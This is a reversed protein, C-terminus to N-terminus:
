PWPHSREYHERMRNIEARVAEQLDTDEVVPEPPEWPETTSLEQVIRADLVDPYHLLDARLQQAEARTAWQMSYIFPGTRSTFTAPNQDIEITYDVHVPGPIPYPLGM